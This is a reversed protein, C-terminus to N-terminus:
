SKIRVERPVSELALVTNMERTIAIPDSGSTIRMSPIRAFDESNDLLQNAQTETCSSVILNLLSEESDGTGGIPFLPDFLSKGFCVSIPRWSAILDNYCVIEAETQWLPRRFWSNLEDIKFTKGHKFKKAFSGKNVREDRLLPYSEKGIVHYYRVMGLCLERYLGPTPNKPLKSVHYIVVEKIPEQKSVRAFVAAKHLLSCNLAVRSQRWSVLRAEKENENEGMNGKQKTRDGKIKEYSLWLDLAKIFEGIPSECHNQMHIEDPHEENGSLSMPVIFRKLYNREVQQTYITYSTMINEPVPVQDAVKSADDVSKLESREVSAAVILNRTTQSKAGKAVWDASQSGQHETKQSSSVSLSSNRSPHAYILNTKNATRNQGLRNPDMDPMSRYGALWIATMAARMRYIDAATKIIHFDTVMGIKDIHEFIQYRQPKFLELQAAFRQSNTLVSAIRTCVNHTNKSIKDLQKCTNETKIKQVKANLALETHFTVLDGATKTIVIAFETKDEEQLRLLLERQIGIINKRKEVEDRLKKVKEKADPNEATSTAENIEKELKVVAEEENEIRKIASFRKNLQGEFREVEETVDPDEAIMKAQSIGENFQGIVELLKPTNELYGDSDNSSDCQINLREIELKEHELKTIAMERAALNDILKKLRFFDSISHTDLGGGLRTSFIESLDDNILRFTYSSPKQALKDIISSYKKVIKEINTLQNKIIQIRETLVAEIVSVGGNIARMKIQKGLEDLRQIYDDVQADKFAVEDGLNEILATIGCHNIFSNNESSVMFAIELEKLAELCDTLYKNKHEKHKILSKELESRVKELGTNQSSKLENLSQTLNNVSQEINLKEKARKVVNEKDLGLYTHNSVFSVAIQGLIAKDATDPLTGIKGIHSFFNDFVAIYKESLASSLTQYDNVSNNQVSYRNGNELHTNWDDLATQLESSSLGSKAFNEKFKDYCDRSNKVTNKARELRSSFKLIQEPGFLSKVPEHSILKEATALSTNLIFIELEEKNKLQPTTINQSSLWLQISLLLGLETVTGISKEVNSSEQDSKVSRPTVKVHSPKEKKENKAVEEDMVNALHAGLNKNELRETEKQSVSLTKEAQDLTQEIPRKHNEFFIRLINKLNPFEKNTLMEHRIPEVKEMFVIYILNKLAENDRSPHNGNIYVEYVDKMEKAATECDDANFVKKLCELFQYMNESASGSGFKDVFVTNIQAFFSELVTQNLDRKITEFNWTKAATAFYKSSTESEQSKGAFSGQASKGVLHRMQHRIGSSSNVSQGM